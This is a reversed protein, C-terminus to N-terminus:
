MFSFAGHLSKAGRLDYSNERGTNTERQFSFQSQSTWFISIFGESVLAPSCNHSPLSPPLICSPLPFSLNQNTSKYNPFYINARHSSIPVDAFKRLHLIHYSQQQNWKNVQRLLHNVESSHLLDDQYQSLYRAPLACSVLKM